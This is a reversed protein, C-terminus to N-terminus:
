RGARRPWTSASSRPRRTRRPPRPRRRTPRQQRLRETLARVDRDNSLLARVDAVSFGLDRLALIRDLAGLQDFQYSRYGTAEDVRAPALLREEDYHRLARVTVGGLRAFDGIRLM